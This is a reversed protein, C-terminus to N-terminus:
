DIPINVLWNEDNTAYHADGEEWLKWHGDKWVTIVQGKKGALESIAERQGKPSIDVDSLGM